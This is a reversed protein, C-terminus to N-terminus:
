LQILYFEEFNTSVPELCDGWTLYLLTIDDQSMLIKFIHTDELHFSHWLSRNPISVNPFDFFEYERGIVTYFWIAIEVFTGLDIDSTQIYGKTFNNEM